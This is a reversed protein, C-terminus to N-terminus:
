APFSERIAAESFLQLDPRSTDVEIVQMGEDAAIPERRQMQWDLVRADAESADQRARAREALRAKLIPFEARCHIIGIRVGLRAALAAFRRREDRQSFTADILASYGGLLIAEACECLRSYVANTMAPSYLSQGLLSNSHSGPKLGGLRKREVDSRVHILQLIPALHRALWTKGSGSVGCILLLLVERPALAQRASRLLARHEDLLAAREKPATSPAISLAAIKARVLARHAKYLNLVRHSDYDGSQELYGSWFAHAHLPWGRAELDVLLLAAEDVVDIWRFAPDFEACDFALLQGDIRAINRTHLDGHGEHVFGAQRRLRLAPATSDLKQLLQPRLVEVEEARGILRAAQLTEELNELVLARVAAPHGWPDSM